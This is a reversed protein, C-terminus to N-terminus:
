FPAPALGELDLKEVIKKFSEVPDVEQLRAAIEKAEVDTLVTNELFLAEFQVNAVVPDFGAADIEARKYWFGTFPIRLEQASAEVSQIHDFRDDVFIIQTPRYGSDTLLVKLRDGKSIHEAFLIGEHLDASELEKLQRPIATRTFDMGVHNLQQITLADIGAVNTTYWQARGRSTLALVAVGEQQLDSILGPIAREVPIYPAKKAISLTLADFLIFDTNGRPLKSRAWPRWAIGGLSMPRAILTDDVDFLVLCEQDTVYSRMDEILSITHIEAQMHVCSLVFFSMIWKKIM